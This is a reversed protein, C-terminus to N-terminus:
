AKRYSLIFMIKTKRKRLQFSLQVAVWTSQLKFDASRFMFGLKHFNLPEIVLAIPNKICLQYELSLFLSYGSYAPPCVQCQVDIGSKKYEVYLCRSFQDIYRFFLCGWILLLLELLCPQIGSEYDWEYYAEIWWILGTVRYWLLVCMSIWEYKLVVIIKM